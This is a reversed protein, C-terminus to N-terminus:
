TDRPKDMTRLGYDTAVSWLSRVVSERDYETRPEEGDIWAALPALGERLVAYHGGALTVFRSQPLAEALRQGHVIPVTRDDPDYLLLTPCDRLMPLLLDLDARMLVEDATSYFSDATYDLFGAWGGRLYDPVRRRRILPWLAKFIALDVRALVRCQLLMLFYPIKILEERVPFRPSPYAAAALALRNARALGSALLAMALVGGASHGAVAHFQEAGSAHLAALLAGTHRALTYRVRPKDSYGFGLLDPIVLQFRSALRDVVPQWFDATGGLGHLLLVPPGAGAVAYAVRHGEFSTYQRPLREFM